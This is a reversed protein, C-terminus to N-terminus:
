DIGPIIDLREVKVVKQVYIGPTQICDPDLEGVEMINEVEAITVDAAMAMVPNYNRATKRYILNGEADGKFAHVFAFDLKLATELIYERGDFIKKEKDQEVSTGMPYVHIDIKGARVLQEFYHQKGKTASRYFPYNAIVKIVQGTEILENVEVNGVGVSQVVITLNGIRKKALARILWTPSGATFFGGFAVTAGPKIDSIAEEVSSYVKNM